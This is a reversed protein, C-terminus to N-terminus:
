KGLPRRMGVCRAESRCFPGKELPGDWTSEGNLLVGMLGSLSLGLLPLHTCQSHWALTLAAKAAENVRLGKQM